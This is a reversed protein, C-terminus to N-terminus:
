KTILENYLREAKRAAVEWSYRERVKKMNNEGIVRALSKDSLVKVIASALKREDGAEVLIGNQESEIIEPIAGAATAVVPKGAAMAEIIVRGFGELRSPLVFLDCSSYLLRL